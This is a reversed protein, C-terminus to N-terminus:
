QFCVHHVRYGVTEQITRSDILQLAWFCWRLLLFTAFIVEKMLKSGLDFVAHINEGVPFLFAYFIFVRNTKKKKSFCRYLIYVLMLRCSTMTGMAVPPTQPRRLSIRVSSGALRFCSHLLLKRLVGAHCWGSTSRWRPERASDSRHSYCGGAAQHWRRGQLISLDTTNRPLHILAVWLLLQRAKIEECKWKWWVRGYVNGTSRVFLIFSIFLCLGEEEKREFLAGGQSM